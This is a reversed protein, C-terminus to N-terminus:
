WIIFTGEMFFSRNSFILLVWLGDGNRDLELIVEAMRAKDKEMRIVAKQESVFFLYTLYIKFIYKSM